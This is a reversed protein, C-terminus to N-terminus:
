RKEKRKTEIKDLAMKLEELFSNKQKRIKNSLGEKEVSLLLNDRDVEKALQNFLDEGNEEIEAVTGFLVDDPGSFDKFKQM